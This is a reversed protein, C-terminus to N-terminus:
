SPYLWMSLTLSASLGEWAGRLWCGMAVLCAHECLFLRPERICERRSVLEMRIVCLEIQTNQPTLPAM